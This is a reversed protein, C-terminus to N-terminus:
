HKYLDNFTTKKHNGLTNGKQFAKGRPANKWRGRKQLEAKILKYLDDGEKMDALAGKLVNEPITSMNIEDQIDYAM